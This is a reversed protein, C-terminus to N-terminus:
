AVAFLAQIQAPFKDAFINGPSFRRIEGVPSPSRYVKRVVGSYRTREATPIGERLVSKELPSGSPVPAVEGVAALPFSLAYYQFKFANVAACPDVYVSTEATRRGHAVAVHGKFVVDGVQEAFAVVQYGYAVVVGARGGRPPVITLSDVAIYPKSYHRRNVYVEVASSDGGRHGFFVPGNGRNLRSHDVRQGIRREARKGGPNEVGVSQLGAFM